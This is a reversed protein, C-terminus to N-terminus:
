CERWLCRLSCSRQYRPGESLLKRRASRVLVYCPQALIFGPAFASLVTRCLDNLEAIKRTTTDSM